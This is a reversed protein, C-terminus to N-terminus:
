GSLAKLSLRVLRPGSYVLGTYLQVLAAGADLRAVVDEPTMVGGSAVVPLSGTNARHLREMALRALPAGSLGGEPVEDVGPRQLTTNGVIVGDVGEDAAVAIATELAELDPSLKVLLPVGRGLREAWEDRRAVLPSLLDDLVHELDRLGPTNPSSVNVALYDALPAFRDILALYDAGRDEHATDSNPGISVGLVVGGPRDPGLRASVAEMGQSPFGMRNVLAHQSELRHIRPRPNGPQPRPTVTGIEVHGFGLRALSRWATGDKDYGAALGIPNRFSLGFAEVPSVEARSSRRPLVRGLRVARLAWRHATEADLRFGIARLARYM